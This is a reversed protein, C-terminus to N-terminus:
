DIIKFDEKRIWINKGNTFVKYAQNCHNEDDSVQIQKVLIGVKDYLDTILEQDETFSFDINFKILSAM